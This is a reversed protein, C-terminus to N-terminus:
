TRLKLAKPLLHQIPWVIAWFKWIQYVMNKHLHTFVNRKNSRNLVTKPCRVLSIVALNLLRTLVQELIITLFQFTIGMEYAGRQTRKKRKKKERKEKIERVIGEGGGERKCVPFPNISSETIGYASVGFTSQSASFYSVGYIIV